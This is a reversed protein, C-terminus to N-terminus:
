KNFIDYAAAPEAMAAKHQKSLREDIEARNSMLEKIDKIMEDAEAAMYINDDSVFDANHKTEEFAFILQNHLFAKYVSSVIESEHNIDFYFDCQDFLEELIDTRVGPYLTVNEYTEMSMLKSSMETLAAINFHMDPLATVIKECQEINDSNTCILAELKHSNDREFPYIYGLKHVQEPNAGLEILKDYAARNQVIIESTRNAQGSLIVQMNGPIDERKHEQWFLIDRKEAQPKLKESVFFPTSLTNYFLRTQNFEAKKLFYMIFELKSHFIKVVDADNLIIDKTVYNEVIIERGDADFYSKNVRQGKANFITRGWLAGRSNYHDSSRVTGKEDYWDVVRVLRKNLPNAYFIRGRERYLDNVKAGANTGSIEWYDPVTIQNFYRPKGMVNKGKPFSGLFFGYVSIVGEPLFGDEDIVVVPCEYGAHMFSEHLKRSDESYTDCLLIMDNLRAAKEM